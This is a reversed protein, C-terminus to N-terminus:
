DDNAATEELIGVVTVNNTGNLPITDGRQIGLLEAAMAGVLAQDSHEFYEGEQIRWWTKINLEEGPDVGVVMVSVGRIDTNVYLKPAITAINGEDDIGLTERIASDAIARIEPLKEESIYNEGVSLTGLSLDGLQMDINNIAPIVTLNPGYKELQEVMRQEGARSITFIGIVTMTGILVGIIAFLVRRRRRLVDRIVMQYLKM